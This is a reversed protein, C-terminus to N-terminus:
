QLAYIACRVFSYLVQDVKELVLECDTDVEEYYEIDKLDANPISICRPIGENFPNSRVTMEFGDSKQSVTDPHFSVVGRRKNLAPSSRGLPFLLADTFSGLLM